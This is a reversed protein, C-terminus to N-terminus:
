TINADLNYDAVYTVWIVLGGFHTSDTLPGGGMADYVSGYVSGSFQYYWGSEGVHASVLQSNEIYHDSVCLDTGLVFVNHWSSSAITSDFLIVKYPHWVGRWYGETGEREPAIWEEQMYKVEISGTLSFSNWDIGQGTSIWDVKPAIETVELGETEFPSQQFKELAIPIFEGDEYKYIGFTISSNSDPDYDLNGSLILYAESFVFAGVLMVTLALGIVVFKTRREMEPMRPRKM